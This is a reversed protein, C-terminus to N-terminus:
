PTASSVRVVLGVRLPEGGVDEFWGEFERVLDLELFYAGASGPATLRVDMDIWEGPRVRGSLAGRYRRYDWELVNEAEDLLHVGLLVAGREEERGVSAEWAATGVNWVRIALLVEGAEWVSM